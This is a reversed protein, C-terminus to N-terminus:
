VIGIRKALRQYQEHAVQKQRWIFILVSLIAITVNLVEFKIFRSREVSKVRPCALFSPLSISDDDYIVTQNKRDALEPDDWECRVAQKNGFEACYPHTKYKKLLLVYKVIALPTVHIPQNILLKTHIHIIAWTSHAIKM